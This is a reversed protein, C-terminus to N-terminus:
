QHIVWVSLTLTLFDQPYRPKSWYQERKVLKKLIINNSLVTHNKIETCIATNLNSHLSDKPGLPQSKLPDGPFETTGSYFKKKRNKFNVSLNM